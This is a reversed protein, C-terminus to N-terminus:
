VRKRVARAVGAPACRSACHKPSPPLGWRLWGPGQPLRRFSSTQQIACGSRYRRSPSARNAMEVHASSEPAAFLVVLLPSRSMTALQHLQPRRLGTTRTFRCDAKISLEGYPDLGAESCCVSLTPQEAYQRRESQWARTSVIPRNGACVFPRQAASLKKLEARRCRGTTVPRKRM